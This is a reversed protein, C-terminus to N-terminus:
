PKTMLLGPTRFNAVETEKWLGVYERDISGWEISCLKQLLFLATSYGLLRYVSALCNEGEYETELLVMCEYM